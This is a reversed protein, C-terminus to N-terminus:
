GRVGELLLIKKQLTQINATLIINQELLNSIAEELSEIKKTRDLDRVVLNEVRALLDLIDKTQDLVVREGPGTIQILGEPINEILIELSLEQAEGEFKKTLPGSEQSLVAFLIENNAIVGIEGIDFEVPNDLLAEIQFSGRSSIFTHSIPLLFNNNQGIDFPAKLSTQDPSPLYFSTGFILHTFVISFGDEQGRTLADIGIKTMVPKVAM